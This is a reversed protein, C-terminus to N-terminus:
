CRLLAEYEARPMPAFGFQALHDTEFQADLHTVGQGRLWDVLAALCLKSADRARSFMSEGCFVPAGPVRVGYLGGVLTDGQWAEVSHAHGANHLACYLAILEANLWTEPRMGACAHIVASFDQNFSIRYKGARATRALRRPAHFDALRLVGRPDPAYWEIQGFSDAMPFIGHRYANLLIDANLRL